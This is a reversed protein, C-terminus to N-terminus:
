VAAKKRLKKLLLPPLLMVVAIAAILVPFGLLHSGWMEKFLYLPNGPEAYMLFMFNANMLLNCILALAALGTLLLLAKPLEKLEPKIEGAVTLVIPYLALLIHVTFSHILMYNAGPLANWTPFLLAAMAGPICVTYLYNGVTKTPKIAHFAIVFINISCLHLPLYFWSLNGGAALVIFKFIEDAILLIAVARKWRMRATASRKRYWCCNIVAILLFVALWTLHITGFLPFGRGSPITEVTQLFNHNM